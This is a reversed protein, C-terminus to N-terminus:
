FYRQENKIMESWEKRTMVVMNNRTTGTLVCKEDWSILERTDEPINSSLKPIMKKDFKWYGTLILRKVDVVKSPLLLCEWNMLHEAIEINKALFDNLNWENFEKIIYTYNKNLSILICMDSLPEQSHYRYDSVIATQDMSINITELWPKQFSIDKYIDCIKEFLDKINNCEDLALKIRDVFKNHVIQMNNECFLTDNYSFKM